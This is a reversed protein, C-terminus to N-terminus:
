FNISCRSLLPDTAENQPALLKMKSGNQTNPRIRAGLRTKAPTQPPEQATKSNLLWSSGLKTKKKKFGNTWGKQCGPANIENWERVTLELLIPSDQNTELVSWFKAFPHFNFVSLSSFELLRSIQVRAGPINRCTSESEPKLDMGFRSQVVLLAKGNKPVRSPHPRREM